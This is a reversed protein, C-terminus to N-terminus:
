APFIANGGRCFRTWSFHTLNFCLHHCKGIRQSAEPSGCIGTNPLWKLGCCGKTNPLNIPQTSLVKCLGDTSYLNERIVRERESDLIMKLSVPALSVPFNPLWWTISDTLSVIYCSTDSVVASWHNPTLVTPVHAARTEGDGSEARLASDQRAFSHFSSSEPGLQHRALLLMETLAWRNSNWPSFFFLWILVNMWNTFYTTSIIFWKQIKRVGM